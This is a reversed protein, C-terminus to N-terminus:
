RRKVKKTERDYVLAPFQKLWLLFPQHDAPDAEVGPPAEAVLLAGFDNLLAAVADNEAHTFGEVTLNGYADALNKFVALSCQVLYADVPHDEAAGRAERLHAIAGTAPDTLDDRVRGFREARDPATSPTRPIRARAQDNIVLGPLAILLARDRQDKVSEAQGRAKQAVDIAEAHEKLKWLCLAELTLKQVWLGDAKLSAEEQPGIGRLLALAARYDAEATSFAEPRARPADPTVADFRDTLRARNETEAARNFADQADRLTRPAGCAAAVVLLALLLTRRM